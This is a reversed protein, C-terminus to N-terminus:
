IIQAETQVWALVIEDFQKYHVELAIGTEDKIFRTALTAEGSLITNRIRLMESFDVGGRGWWKFMAEKVSWLITAHNMAQSNNLLQLEDTHLFKKAIRLVKETPIEIDIGVRKTQSAIVAAYDGCHSISFHYAEDELFPKKTDAIRILETPFDPFLYKLLFRGALHQLRKHPHSVERQAEVKSLFFTEDEEIKWIGLKTNHDIEQQFFIPM